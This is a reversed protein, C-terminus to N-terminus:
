GADYRYVGVDTGQEDAQSPVTGVLVLKGDPQVAVEYAHEDADGPFHDTTGVGGAGYSADLTGDQNYRISIFGDHGDPEYDPLWERGVVIVKGDGTLTLASADGDDVARVVGQTGFGSDLAGATTYQALYIQATGAGSYRPEATGTVLIRGNPRVAVDEAWGGLRAVLGGQGAFTADPTGNANFRVLAMGEPPIGYIAAGGAVVIKGDAQVAVANAWQYYLEHPVRLEAVGDVGFSTDLTGDPLWRAVRLGQQSDLVALVKGDPQLQIDGLGGGANVSTHGGVGFSTDLTGDANYRVIEGVGYTQQNPIVATSVLYKGDPQLELDNTRYGIQGTEVRGGTGFSMDPSGDPNFREIILYGSGLQESFLVVIKGDPQVVVAAPEDPSATSGAITIIGDGGGFGSDLPPSCAAVVLAVGALGAGGLWRRVAPRDIVQGM